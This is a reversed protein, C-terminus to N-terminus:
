KLTVPFVRNIIVEFKKKPKQNQTSLCEVSDFAHM